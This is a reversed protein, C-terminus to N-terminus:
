GVGESLYKLGHNGLPNHDLKLVLLNLDNSYHLAKSIMECGVLTLEADLLELVQVTKAMSMFLMIQRVGEDECKTRWLRISNCHKYKAQVAAEMLARVGQWGFEDWIHFQLSM